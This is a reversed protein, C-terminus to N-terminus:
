TASQHSIPLSIEFVSSLPSKQRLKIDGGHARAVARSFSLGLGCGDKTRSHDCRYFRDFIREQDSEPVGIGTDSVTVIADKEQQALEVIIQGHTPTYKVANDILNALMRQLNHKNGYVSCDTALNTSLQIHKNEALPCYLECADEALASLNVEESNPERINAEAEAVDLTMNIMLLLRDCEELTDSAAKEFDEQTGSSSLVSESIARIRGLPSRLDHAINDTMERMESILKRIQEAMENFKDALETVEDGHSRVVVRRDLRGNGLDDVAQSVEKIGRVAKQSMWWGSLAGLPLITSFVILCIVFLDNLVDDREEMTEGLYLVMDSGIFGAATRAEMDGKLIQDVHVTEDAELLAQSLSAADVLTQWDSVESQLLVEGATDTLRIFFQEPDETSIEQNIERLFSSMGQEEYIEQLEEVDGVLDEEMDEDFTSKMFVYLSLLIVSFLVLFTLTYWIALRSSLTTPYNISSKLSM